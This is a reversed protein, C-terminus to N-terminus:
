FKLINLIKTYIMANNTTLLLNIAINLLLINIPM